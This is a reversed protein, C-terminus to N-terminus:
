TTKPVIRQAAAEKEDCLKIIERFYLAEQEWEAKDLGLRKAAITEANDAKAQAWFRLGKISPANM